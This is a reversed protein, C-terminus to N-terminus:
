RGLGAPVGAAALTRGPSGAPALCELLDRYFARPDGPRAARRAPPVPPPQGQGPPRRAPGRPLFAPGADPLDAGGRGPPRGTPFAAPPARSTTTRWSACGAAGPLGADARLHDRVPRRTAPRAAPRLAAQRLHLRLGAAAPGVGPGLLGRGHVPLRPSAASAASPRPGSRAYRGAGHRRGARSTAGPARRIVDPLLLMAMDCRVGDCRSPSGAAAREIMAAQAPRPPPLQAAAHRALRPLVPRPRPRPGARGADRRSGPPLEAPRPGPRDADGHIYFEPHEGVWPHDLATHNPVFDLMLECAASAAAPRAAAGARRRRRLREHVTYSQVAFPSGCIDDDTLDPLDDRCLGAAVRPPRAVGEPRGAGDALRRAAVALRVRARRPRRAPTPCTASRRPAASNRRWSVSGSAPTSRTCRRTASRRCRPRRRPSGALPSPHPYFIACRCAPHWTGMVEIRPGREARGACARLPRPNGRAPQGAPLQPRPAPPVGRRLRRRVGPRPQAGWDRMAQVYHDMGHHKLLWDRQSAHCALMDRRPTSSAASTSASRRAARRPRAPGQGRDPRLLLPAPHAAAAPRRGRDRLFNPIPRPSPPRRARRHQDDRPRAHLRGPQADARRAAAGPAAAAHRAGAATEDYFVCCTASRSATIAHRRDVAAARAGEARRIRRDRRAAAGGLRLRGADHHRHPGALRARALRILTGACLFEADDPHALISLIVDPVAPTVRRYDERPRLVPERM